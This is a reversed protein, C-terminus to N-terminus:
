SNAASKCSIVLNFCIRVWGGRKRLFYKISPHKVRGLSIKHSQVGEDGGWVGFSFEHARGQSNVTVILTFM